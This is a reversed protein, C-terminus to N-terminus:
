FCVETLQVKGHATNAKVFGEARSQNELHGTWFLPTNGEETCGKEHASLSLIKYDSQNRPLHARSPATERQMQHLAGEARAARKGSACTYSSSLTPNVEMPLVNSKRGKRVMNGLATITM